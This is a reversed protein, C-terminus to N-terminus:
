AAYNGMSGEDLWRKVPINNTIVVNYSKCPIFFKLLNVYALFSYILQCSPIAELAM